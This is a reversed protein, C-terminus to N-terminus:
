VRVVAARMIIGGTIRRGYMANAENMKQQRLRRAKRRAHASFLGGIGQGVLSAGAAIGAAALLPLAM